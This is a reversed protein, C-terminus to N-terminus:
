RRISEVSTKKLKNIREFGCLECKSSELCSFFEGSIGVHRFGAAGAFSLCSFLTVLRMRTDRLPRSSAAPWAPQLSHCTDVGCNGGFYEVAATIKPEERWYAGSGIPNLRNTSKLKGCSKGNRAVRQLEM